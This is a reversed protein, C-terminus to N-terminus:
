ARLVRVVAFVVVIAALLATGLIVIGAPVGFLEVDETRYITQYVEADSADAEFAFDSRIDAPSDISIRLETLYDRGNTTVPALEPDSTAVRGAFDVRVRQAAADPDSRRVRHESLTYLHVYQAHEAASSMRMPYVFRDSDFSLRVPDIAGDLPQASTLRMAVFSWGERLYPELASVVEPRMEYGNDSLWKRIGDLNGGSLTTAELPGLRVRELVTPGGDAASMAGEGVADDVGSGFWRRQTVVKPATLNALETFTAASSGAVTAPKPTPVILAAQDTGSKLALRMLVTEHRGDWSILATEERVSAPHGPPNAMGGCACASAPALAGIGAGAFLMGIVALLHVARM